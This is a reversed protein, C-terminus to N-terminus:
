GSSTARSAAPLPRLLAGARDAVTLELVEPQQAARAILWGATAMLGIGFVVALAGLAISLAVRARPPASLALLRRITAIMSAVVTAPVDSLRGHDLRVVRDARAILEPRHAIVLVAREGAM